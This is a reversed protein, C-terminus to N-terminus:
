LCELWEKWKADGFTCWEINHKNCWDGYTTKSGKAIPVKADMFVMRVLVNPNSIRVHLMKKREVLTFRGKSEWFIKKNKGLQWDPTYTHHTEPLVYKLKCKEYEWEIGLDDLHKAINAEFKSKFGDTRKQKKMNM